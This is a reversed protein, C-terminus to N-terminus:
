RTVSYAFAGDGHGRWGRAGAVGGDALREWHEVVAHELASRGAEDLAGVVGPSLWGSRVPSM